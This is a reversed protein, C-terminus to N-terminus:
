TSPKELNCIRSYAFAARIHGLRDHRYFLSMIKNTRGDDVAWMTGIVSSFGDSQMVSALHIMEYSVDLRKRNSLGHCALHVWQNKGLGRSVRAICFQPGKVRSRPLATSTSVLIPRETGVSLLECKGRTNAEGTAVFHKGKTVPNSSGPRRIRLLSPTYPSIYLNPQGIRYPGAAHLPLVSSEAPPCWWIHSRRLYTTRPFDVIPSVVDDRLRGLIVGLDRTVDM